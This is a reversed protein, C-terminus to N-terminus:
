RRAHRGASRPTRRQEPARLGALTRELLEITPQKLQVAPLMEEPWWRRDEAPLGIMARVLSFLPVEADAVASDAVAHGDPAADLRGRTWAGRPLVDPALLDLQSYM